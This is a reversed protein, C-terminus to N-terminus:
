VPAAGPRTGHSEPTAAIEERLWRCFNATTRSERGHRRRVLWYGLGSQVHTGFPAVLRGDALADAALMQWALMVGHGALVADMALMPDGFHAGRHMAVPAEGMAAFWRDWSIMANEDTIAWADALDAIRRLKGALRPICVPFVTEELLLEAAVGPWGGDGLRIAVDVDSRDLDVLRTTADIRVLVDPHRQFHTALRPLLWRSAFAPAVSVVVTGQTQRAALAVANELERFGSSLHAVFASGFETLRLGGPRRVFVIQGLQAEARSVQQSVASPSVGLEEAAQRLSGRRALVEVARLGNLHIANLKM